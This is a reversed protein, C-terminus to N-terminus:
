ATVEALSSTLDDDRAPPVGATLVLPVPAGVPDYSHALVPTKGSSAADIRLNTVGTVAPDTALARLVPGNPLFDHGGSGFVVTFQYNQGFRAPHAAADSVGAAFTFAAIVGLVSYWLSRIVGVIRLRVSPGAPKADLGMNVSASAQAPTAETDAPVFPNPADPAVGTLLGTYAPFTTLAEVEPLARIRNWDFGPQNPVVEATAPRTVALLRTVASAGRRAGATATLVTASAIAMLLCCALLAPWRLRAERRLWLMLLPMGSM